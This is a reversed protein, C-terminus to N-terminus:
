LVSRTHTDHIIHVLPGISYSLENEASNSAITQVINIVLIVKLHPSIPIFGLCIVSVGGGISGNDNSSKNTRTGSSSRRRGIYRAIGLIHDTLPTHIYASRILILHGDEFGFVTDGVHCLVSVLTLRFHYATQTM